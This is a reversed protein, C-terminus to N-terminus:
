CASEKWGSSPSLVKRWFSLQSSDCPMIAWFIANKMTVAIFVQFRVFETVMQFGKTYDTVMHCHTQSVMIIHRIILQVMFAM